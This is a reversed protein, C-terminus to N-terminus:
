RRLRLMEADTGRFGFRQLVMKGGADRVAVDRQGTFPNDRV